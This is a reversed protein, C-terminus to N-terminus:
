ASRNRRDGYGSGTRDDAKRIGHHRRRRLLATRRLPDGGGQDDRRGGGAKITADGAAQKIGAELGERVAAGLANVPPNNSIIVLVDGHRETRIPSTPTDSM